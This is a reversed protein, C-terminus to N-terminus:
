IDRRRIEVRDPDFGKRPSRTRDAPNLRVDEVVLEVFHRRHELDAPWDGINAPLRAPTAGALKEQCDALHQRSRDLARLITDVPVGPRDLSAELEQIRAEIGTIEALLEPANRTSRQAITDRVQPDSLRDKAYGEVIWEIPEASGSVGGCGPMDPRNPCRYTRKGKASSTVMRHGCKGCHILGNLLSVRPVYRRTRSTLLARVTEWTDNDLIPEWDGTAVIEGKLTSHGAIRPNLLYQKITGPRWTSGRTTVIGEADLWRSVTLIPVGSIIDKAMRRAIDAEAPKVKGDRTYGFLRSGTRAVKGAERGQRWSRKWREAKLEGEGMAIVSLMRAVMRGYASDLNLDGAKVTHVLISHKEIIEVLTELDSFRRYLRDPQWTVIADIRGAEIDAVMRNFSPRTKYASTDNDTYIEAVEWGERKCLELCDERQRTVGLQEGTADQSLRLYVAARVPSDTVRRV